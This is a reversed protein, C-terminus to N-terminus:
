LPVASCYIYVFYYGEDRRKIQVRRREVKPTKEGVGAYRNQM